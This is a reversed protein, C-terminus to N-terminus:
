SSRKSEIVLAFENLTGSYFSIAKAFMLGLDTDNDGGAINAATRVFDAAQENSLAGSDLLTISLRQIAHMQAALAVLLAQSAMKASLELQQADM